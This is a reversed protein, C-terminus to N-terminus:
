VPSRERPPAPPLILDLRFGDSERAAQVRGGHAEAIGRLIALGLGAGSAADADADAYADAGHDASRADDARWGVEFISRRIPTPSSRRACGGYTCPRTSAEGFTRVGRWCSM